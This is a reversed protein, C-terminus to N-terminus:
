DDEEFQTGSFLNRGARVSPPDDACIECDPDACEIISLCEACEGGSTGAMKWGDAPRVAGCVARRVGDASDHDVREFAHTVWDSVRPGEQWYCWSIQM